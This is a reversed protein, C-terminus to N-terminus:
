IPRPSNSQASFYREVLEEISWWKLNSSSCESSSSVAHKVYFGFFFSIVICWMMTKWCPVFATTSRGHRSEHFGNPTVPLEPVSEERANTWVEIESNQECDARINLNSSHLRLVNNNEERSNRRSEAQEFIERLEGISSSSSDTRDLKEVEWKQVEASLSPRRLTVRGSVSNRQRLGDMTRNTIPVGRYRTRPMDDGLEGSHDEVVINNETLIRKTESLDHALKECRSRLVLLYRDALLVARSIRNEQHVAGLTEATCSVRHACQNIMELQHRVREVREVSERDICLPALDQIDQHMKQIECSLNRESQDRQRISLAVRRHLTVRDTVLGVSLAIFKRELEAEPLNERLEDNNPLKAIGSEQLRADTLSPFVAPRNEEKNFEEQSSVVNTLRCRCESRGCGSDSLSRRITHPKERKERKPVISKKTQHDPIDDLKKVNNNNCNENNNNISAPTSTGLLAGGVFNLVTPSISRTENGVNCHANDNERIAMPGCESDSSDEGSSMALAVAAPSVNAKEDKGERRICASGTVGGGYSAANRENDDRTEYGCVAEEVHGYWLGGPKSPDRAHTTQVDTQPKNYTLSLPPKANPQAAPIKSTFDNCTSEVDPLSVSKSLDVSEEQAMQNTSDTDDNRSLVPFNSFNLQRSSPSKRYTVGKGIDRNSPRTFDNAFSNMDKSISSVDSPFHNKEYIQRKEYNNSNKAEDNFKTSTAVPAYPPIEMVSPLKLKTPAIVPRQSSRNPTEIETLSDFCDHGKSPSVNDSSDSEDNKERYSFLFNKSSQSNKMSESDFSEEDLSKEQESPASMLRETLRYTNSCVGPETEDNLTDIDFSRDFVSIKRKPRNRLNINIPTECYDVINGNPKDVKKELPKEVAAGGSETGIFDSDNREEPIAETKSIKESELTNSKIMSETLSSAGLKSSDESLSLTKVLQAIPEVTFDDNLTTNNIMGRLLGDGGGSSIVYTSAFDPQLNKPPNLNLDAASNDVTTYICRSRPNKSPSTHATNKEERENTCQIIRELEQVIPEIITHEQIGLGTSMSCSTSFRDNDSKVAECAIEAEEVDGCDGLSHTNMSFAGAFTDKVRQFSWNEQKESQRERKERISNFEDQFCRIGLQSSLRQNTYSSDTSAQSSADKVEPKRVIENVANSLESIKRLLSSVEPGQEEDTDNVRADPDQSKPIDHSFKQMVKNIETLAQGINAEYWSLEDELERVRSENSASFGSAKLEEFLSDHLADDNCSLSPTRSYLFGIPTAPGNGDSPSGVTDPTCFVFKENKLEQVKDRLCQISKEYSEQLSKNVESIQALQDRLLECERQKDELEQRCLTLERICDYKEKKLRELHSDLLAIQQKEAEADDLKRALSNKEKEMKQLAWRCDREKEEAEHLLEQQEDNERELQRCKEKTQDFKKRLNELQRQLGASLEEARVLDERLMSNEEDFRRIRMRLDLAPVDGIGVAVGCGSDAEDPSEPATDSMACGHTTDSSPSYSSVNLLDVFDVTVSKRSAKNKRRREGFLIEFDRENDSSDASHQKEDDSRSDDKTVNNNGDQVRRQQIKTVWRKSAKKFLAYNVWGDGSCEAISKQLEDLLHKDRYKGTAIREIYDVLTKVTVNSTRSSLPSLSSFSSSSSSALCDYFVRRAVKEWEVQDIEIFENSM